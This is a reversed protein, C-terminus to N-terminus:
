NSSRVLPLFIAPEIFPPNMDYVVSAEPQQTRTEVQGTSNTAVVEFDYIADSSSPFVFEYFDQSTTTAVQWAQGRVRSYLTFSTITTGPPTFFDWRVTVRTPDPTGPQIFPPDFPRVLSIPQAVVTTEAQAISSWPQVNGANDVGRVRFGYLAGNDVGTMTYSTGTYSSLLTQWNEDNEFYQVDYHAIGSGGPNDTGTWSLQITTGFTYQPLSNMTINPPVTDVRTQTITASEWSQVNGARDIARVRFQYTQGDAGGAFEASTATSQTIWDVWNGGGVNYQAQYYAIGTANPDTGEFDTGTWSVTFPSRSFQPLGTVTAVPPTTDNSITFDVIIRPYLGNAANQSYISRQRGTPSEDGQLMVGHNPHAGSVWDRVLQTADAQLEANVPGVPISGVGIETGWTPQHSNWTLTSASWPDDLHRALVAMPADGAPAGGALWIQFTASNVIANSPVVSAIDFELFTRMAGYPTANDYGIRLFADAGYNTTPQGSAIFTDQRVPIEAQVIRQDGNETVSLIKFEHSAAIVDDSEGTPAPDAGQAFATTAIVLLVIALALVSFRTFQSTRPSSPPHTSM